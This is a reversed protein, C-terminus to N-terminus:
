TDQIGLSRVDVDVVNSASANIAVGIAEGQAPTATAAVSGTTTVSRKLISGASVTGDCPVNEAMGARIVIGSDGAAIADRAIGVCLVATSDTAALAVQGATSIAVVRKATVATAAKYPAPLHWVEQQLSDGATSNTDVVISM